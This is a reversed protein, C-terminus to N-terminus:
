DVDANKAAPRKLNPLPKDFGKTAWWLIKNLTESPADDIDAWNMKASEQAAWLERGRLAKLPPNMEDLAIKPTLSTYTEAKADKTFLSTMARASAMHRTAPAIRFIDQITRIMSTHNYFDSVVANRRVHPGIALAITRHGDVHDYGNQADDESM